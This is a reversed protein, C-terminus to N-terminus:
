PKQSLNHLDVQRYIFVAKGWKSTLLITANLFMYASSHQHQTPLYNRTEDLSAKDLATMNRTPCLNSGNM